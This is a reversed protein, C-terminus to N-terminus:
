ELKKQAKDGLPRLIIIPTRQDGNGAPNDSLATEIPKKLKRDSVGVAWAIQLDNADVIATDHGTLEKVEQCTKSSDKPGLVVYYDFPPIAGPMDDILAAQEGALRYFMGSGPFVKSLVGGFVASYLIRFAGTEQIAAQMSLPNCLPANGGFPFQDDHVFRSLVKALSSAKISDVSYIRREALAVVCSAITLLDGKERINKTYQDMVSPIDMGPMIIETKITIREYAGKSSSFPPIEVKESSLENWTKKIERSFSHKMGLALVEMAKDKEGAHVLALAYRVFEKDHFNSPKFSIFWEYYQLAKEWNEKEYYINSVRKLLYRLPSLTSTNMREKAQILPLEYYPLAKDTDKLYYRYIDGIFLSYWDHQADQAYANEFLSICAKFHGQQLLLDAERWVQNRQLYNM